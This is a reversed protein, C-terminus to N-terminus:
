HGIDIKLVADSHRHRWDWYAQQQARSAHGWDVYPRHQQEWYMHYARDEHADWKHYDKHHADYYGRSDHDQAYIGVPLVLAMSLSMTIFLKKM